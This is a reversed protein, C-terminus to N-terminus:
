TENSVFEINSLLNNDCPSLTSTHRILAVMDEIEPINAVFSAKVFYFLVCNRNMFIYQLGTLSCQTLRELAIDHSEHLAYHLEFITYREKHATGHDLHGLNGDGFDDNKGLIIRTSIYVTCEASLM